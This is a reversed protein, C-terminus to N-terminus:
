LKQKIYIPVEVPAIAESEAIDFLQNTLDIIKEPPLSNVGNVCNVIFSEIQNVDAGLKNIYNYLRVSGALESLGIGQKKLSVALEGISDYESDKVGKKWEKIINTVTGAGINNDASIRDRSDGSL